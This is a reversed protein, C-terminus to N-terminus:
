VHLSLCSIVSPITPATSLLAKFLWVSDFQVTSQEPFVGKTVSSISDYESRMFIMYKCRPFQLIDTM